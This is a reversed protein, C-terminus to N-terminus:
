GNVAALVVTKGHQEYQKMNLDVGSPVAVDNRQMWERNGILVEFQTNDSMDRALPHDARSLQDYVAYNYVKFCHNELRYGSFQSHSQSCSQKISELGGM